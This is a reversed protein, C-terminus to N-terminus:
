PSAHSDQTAIPELHSESLDIYNYANAEAQPGWLTRAAFRVCYVPQLNEGQYHARTDPFVWPQANVTHVIGTKGRTYATVRTHGAPHINRVRVTDGVAFRPHVEADHRWAGWRVKDQEALPWNRDARVPTYYGRPDTAYEALRQEIEETFLIGRAALLTEMAFLWRGYYGDALYREPAMLEIVHRHEDLNWVGLTDIVQTMCFVRAEWNAHFVPEEHEYEYPVAGFGHLGGMDHIGNM